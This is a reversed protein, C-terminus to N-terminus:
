QARAVHRTLSGSCSALAIRTGFGGGTGAACGPRNSSPTAYTTARLRVSSCWAPTRLSRHSAADQRAWGPKHSAGFWWAAANAICMHRTCQGTSSRQRLAVVPM